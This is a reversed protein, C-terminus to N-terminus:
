AASAPSAGSAAPWASALAEGGERRQMLRVIEGGDARRLRAKGVSRLHGAEVGGEVAAVGPFGVDDGQGPAIVGAAHPAVAEV